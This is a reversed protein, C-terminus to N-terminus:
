SAIGDHYRSMILKISWSESCTVDVSGMCENGEAVVCAVWM